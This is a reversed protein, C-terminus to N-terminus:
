KTLYFAWARADRYVMASFGPCEGEPDRTPAGIFDNKPGRYQDAWECSVEILSGARAYAEEIVTRDVSPFRKALEEKAKAATEDSYADKRLYYAADLLDTM